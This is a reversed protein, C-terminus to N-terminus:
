FARPLTLLFGAGGENTELILEGGLERALQRCLALGLGVGPASHAAETASKAFPQFLKKLQARSLGPGHDRVRFEMLRPQATIRLQISRETCAPAAYKCANDVLNFLIQEVALPDVQLIAARTDPSCEIEVKLQVERARQQLRPEIRRLLDGLALREQRAATRGREIRSYALVNEVLHTLRTSETCLTNLYDRRQEPDPVMDDALMESYLQFTTLPTRLEHTVASVFAGRRESLAITRHLVLAIALTTGIFCLWAIGLARRLPSDLRYVPLEVAGPLLKVPLMVLHMPDMQPASAIELKAQPLLDRVSELLSAQLRPWDLWVGQMLRVGDVRAQRILLLHSDVWLAAMDSTMDPAPEAPTQARVQSPTGGNLMLSDIAGPVQRDAEPEPLTIPAPARTRPVAASAAPAAAFGLDAAPAAASNADATMPAPPAAPALDDGLTVRGEAQKKLRSASELDAPAEKPREAEPVKNKSSYLSSKESPKAAPIAKMPLKKQEAKENFANQTVLLNSRQNFERRNSLEQVSTQAEVDNAAATESKVIRGWLSSRRPTATVKPVQGTLLEPHEKLLARMEPLRQQAQRVSDTIVYWQNALDLQTGTPVQPSHAEKDASAEFHLLVHDPPTGLLPSPQLAEGRPVALNDKAFLEEPAYFAQYHWAPRTNERIVLGGALSDMRWLALRVREQLQAERDAALRQDELRLTRLSVWAMAACFVVLCLSFLFWRLAPRM